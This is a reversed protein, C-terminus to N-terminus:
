SLATLEEAKSSPMIFTDKFPELPLVNSAEAGLPDVLKGFAFNFSVADRSSQM